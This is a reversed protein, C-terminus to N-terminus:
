FPKWHVTNIEFHKKNDDNDGYLWIGIVYQSFVVLLCMKPHRRYYLYPIVLKIKSFNTHMSALLGHIWFNSENNKWLYFMGSPRGFSWSLCSLSRWTLSICLCTCSMKIVSKELKAVCFNKYSRLIFPPYTCRRYHSWTNQICAILKKEERNRKKQKM